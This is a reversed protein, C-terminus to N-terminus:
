PEALWGGVAQLPSPDDARAAVWVAVARRAPAAQTPQPLTLEAAYGYPSGSMTRSSHALVVFDERLRRGANEGRPVATEMDFGLRVFHAVLDGAGAPEPLYRVRATTADAQARLVGATASASAPSSHLQWGRWERGGLVFAPTYVTSLHGSERYAVQRASYAPSAYRDHWGLYDWYDVHFAVPVLEHWLRRDGILGTLLADAPPCSSCGQSTYLELLLARRSGSELSIGQAAVAATACLLLGGLMAHVRIM